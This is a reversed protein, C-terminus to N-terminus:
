LLVSVEGHHHHEVDATLNRAYHDITHTADDGQLWLLLAHHRLLGKFLDIM